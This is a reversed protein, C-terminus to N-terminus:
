ARHRGIPAPSYAVLYGPTWRTGFVMPAAVLANSVKYEYIPVLGQQSRKETRSCASNWWITLGVVSWGRPSSQSGPSRVVFIRCISCSTTQHGAHVTKSVGSQTGRMRQCPLKWRSNPRLFGRQRPILIGRTKDRVSGDPSQKMERFEGNQGSNDKSELLFGLPLHQEESM